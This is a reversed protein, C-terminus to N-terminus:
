LEKANLKIKINECLIRQLIENGKKKDRYMTFLICIYVCMRM